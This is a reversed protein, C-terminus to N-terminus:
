YVWNVSSLETRVEAPTLLHVEVQEDGQIVNQRAPLDRLRRIKAPDFVPSRFVGDLVLRLFAPNELREDVGKPLQAFWQDIVAAPYGPFAGHVRREVGPELSFDKGRAAAALEHILATREPAFRTMAVLRGPGSAPRTPGSVVVLAAAGSAGDYRRGRGYWVTEADPVEVTVGADVLRAILYPAISYTAAFGRVVVVIPTTREVKALVAAAVTRDPGFSVLDRIQDDPGDTFAISATLLACVLLLAVPALGRARWARGVARRRRDVVLALGLGLATWTVFAISWAWRYLNVKGSEISDPINSGDVFGAAMLTLAVVALRAVAPGRTRAAVGLLALAVVVLAGAVLRSFDVSGLFFLGSTNTRGLLTPPTVTRMVEDFGSKFGVTPRTGDRSFRLIATLNGPHGTAQEYAVPAWCVAAVALAAASWRVAFRAIAEDGRRARRVVQWVIAVTALAGLALVMIVAALHQQAAYSGVLAALPLLRLDGDIVAWALIATAVLSYMPMNSSLTDTLVATGGSWIVALFVAGAWLTATSGLRRFLAWLAALGCGANVAAATVLPGVSLGLVRVPLAMAYFEFPGPHSTRINGGYIESSSPLGTLPVHRSFVDLSQIAIRAEDNTPVWGARRARIFAVVFPVIVLVFLGSMFFRDRGHLDRLRHPAREWGDGM